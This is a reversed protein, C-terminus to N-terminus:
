ADGEHGPQQSRGGRNGDWGAAGMVWRRPLELGTVRGGLYWRGRETAVMQVAPHELSTSGYCAKAEVVKNAVWRSEVDM